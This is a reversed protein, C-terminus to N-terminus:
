NNGIPLNAIETSKGKHVMHHLIDVLKLLHLKQADIDGEPSSCFVRVNPRTKPSILAGVVHFGRTSAWTTFAQIQAASEDDIM